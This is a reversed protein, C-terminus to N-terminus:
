QGFVDSGNGGYGWRDQSTSPDDEQKLCSNFAQTVHTGDISAKMACAAARDSPGILLDNIGAAYKQAAADNIVASKMPDNFAECALWFNTVHNRFASKLTTEFTDHMIVGDVTTILQPNADGDYFNGVVKPCSMYNVYNQATAQDKLLRVTKLGAAEAHKAVDITINQELQMNNPAFAIFQVSPDPCVAATPQPQAAFDQQTLQYNREVNGTAQFQDNIDIRAIDVKHYKKSFLYVLVYNPQESKTRIVQTKIQRYDDIYINQKVLQVIRDLPVASNGHSTTMLTIPTNAQAASSALLAAAVLCKKLM